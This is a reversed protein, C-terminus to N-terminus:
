GCSGAREKADQYAVWSGDGHEAVHLGTKWKAKTDPHPGTLPGHYHNARFVHGSSKKKEPIGDAEDSFSYGTSSPPVSSSRVMTNEIFANNQTGRKGFHIGTGHDAFGMADGIEGDNDMSVLVALNEVVLNDRSGQEAFVPWRHWGVVTNQVVTNRDSEHDLDVGDWGPNEIVNHAVVSDRAGLMWVARKYTKQITNGRVAANTTGWKLAVGEWTNVIDLGHVLLGDAGSAHVGTCSGDSEIRGGDKGLITVGPESKVNIIFQDNNELPFGTAKDGSPPGAPPNCHRRLRGAVVVTTHAPVFLETEKSVWIEGEIQFTKGHTTNTSIKWLEGSSRIYEDVPPTGVAAREKAHSDVGPHGTVARRGAEDAITGLAADGDPSLLEALTKGSSCDSREEGGPYLAADGERGNPTEGCAGCLVIVSFFISRRIHEMAM